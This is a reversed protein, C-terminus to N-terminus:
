SLSVIIEHYITLYVTFRARNVVTLCSHEECVSWFRNGATVTFIYEVDGWHSNAANVQCPLGRVAQVSVLLVHFLWDSHCLVSILPVSRHLWGEFQLRNFFLVNGRWPHLTSHHACSYTRRDIDICHRNAQMDWFKVLSETCTSQPRPEARRRHCHLLNYIEPKTSSTM